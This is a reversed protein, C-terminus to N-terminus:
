MKLEKKEVFNPVTKVLKKFIITWNNFRNFFKNYEEKTEANNLAEALKNINAFNFHEDLLKYEKESLETYGLENLFVNRQLKRCLKEMSNEKWENKGFM